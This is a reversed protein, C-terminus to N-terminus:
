PLTTKTAELLHGLRLREYAACDDPNAASGLGRPDEHVLKAPKLMPPTASRRCWHTWRTVLERLCTMRRRRAVSEMPVGGKGHTMRTM